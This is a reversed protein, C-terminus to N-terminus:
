FMPKQSMTNSEKDNDRGLDALTLWADRRAASLSISADILISPNKCSWFHNNVLHYGISQGNMPLGECVIM